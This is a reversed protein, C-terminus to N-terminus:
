YSVVDKVLKLRFEKGAEISLNKGQVTLTNNGAYTKSAEIRISDTNDKISVIDATLGYFDETQKIFDFRLGVSSVKKDDAYKAVAIVRGFVETGALFTVGDGVLDNVLKFSLDAGPQVNEADIPTVIAAAFETGSKLLIRNENEAQATSQAVTLLVGLGLTIIATVIKYM